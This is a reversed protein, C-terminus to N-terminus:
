HGPRTVRPGPRSRPDPALHGKPTVGGRSRGLAERDHEADPNKYNSLAGQTCWPRNVAPERPTSIPGSWPPTWRWWGNHGTMRIAAQACITLSGHGRAMLQGVITVAT